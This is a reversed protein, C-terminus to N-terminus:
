MLQLPHKTAWFIAQVRNPVDIKGYINRVHTKVTYPSICLKDAIEVNAAGMVLLSLIEKERKTLDFQASPSPSQSNDYGVYSALSNSLITRSFWLEGHIIARIGKKFTELTDKAYFIGRVGAALAENEINLNPNVNFCALHWSSPANRVNKVLKGCFTQRNFDLCDWLVLSKKGKKQSICFSAFSTNLFCQNNPGTAHDLYFYLLENSMREYGIIYLDCNELELGKM